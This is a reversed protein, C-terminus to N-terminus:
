SMMKLADMADFDWDWDQDLLSWLIGAWTSNQKVEEKEQGLFWVLDDLWFWESKTQKGLFSLLIPAAMKLINAVQSIDLWTDKWIQAEVSEKKSWLIHDLIKNGEVGKAEWFLDSVNDLLSGDHDKTLASMLWEAWSATKTNNALWMILSSLWEDTVNDIIKPDLWTTEAIKNSVQKMIFDQALEKLMTHLYIFYSLIILRNWSRYSTWRWRIM